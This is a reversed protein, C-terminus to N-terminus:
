EDSVCRMTVSRGLDGVVSLKERTGDIGEGVGESSPGAATLCSIVQPVSFAVGRMNDCDSSGASVVSVGGTLM